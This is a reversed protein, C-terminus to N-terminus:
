KRWLLCHHEFRSVWRSRLLFARTQLSWGIRNLLCPHRFRSIKKLHL